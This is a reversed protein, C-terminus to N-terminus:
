RGRPSMVEKLLAMLSDKVGIAEETYTATGNEMPFRWSEIHDRPVDVRLSPIGTVKTFQTQGEKSLLWNIYVRAANPHPARNVLMLTAPGPSLAGGEALRQPAIMRIPVGVKALDSTVTEAPGLLISFKGQGVMDLAQRDNRLITLDQKMLARIFDPGLRPNMLFFTFTSQGPGPGRPDRGVIIKGKWKPDLLDRFSTFEEPKVLNTNIAFAPRTILGLLVNYRDKDSYHLKGGLWNRGDTVEPLLLAPEIPDLVGQPKMFILATSTGQVFVDWLYKGARRERSVRAAQASGQMGLYEVSLGYKKEFPATLVQRYDSG